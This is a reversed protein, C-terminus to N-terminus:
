GVLFLGYDDTPLGLDEIMSGNEAQYIEDAWVDYIIEPSVASPRQLFLSLALCTGLVSFSSIIKKQRKRRHYLPKAENLLEDITQM